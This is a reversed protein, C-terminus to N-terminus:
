RKAVGWRQLTFSYFSIARSELWTCANKREEEARFLAYMSSGSGSMVCCAAGFGVMAMKLERLIPFISFVAPEFSNFLIVDSICFPKKDACTPSTLFNPDGPLKDWAEYADKTSVHVPPCLLLMEFSSLDVEVPQLIEGIGHALSPVNNLFFPVDAGVDAGLALLAQGELAQRGASRNLFNLLAGADSSGGGLGAGMPIGKELSVSLDPRYGTMDAYREYASSLINSSGSLGPLSCTISLGSGPPGDAIHLLDYPEHLPYFLTCIEHYGDPRQALIGLFLNIKSGARLTTPLGQMV